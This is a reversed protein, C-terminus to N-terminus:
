KNDTHKKLKRKSTKLRESLKPWVGRPEDFFFDFATGGDSKRCNQYQGLQLLNEETTKCLQTQNHMDQEVLEAKTM